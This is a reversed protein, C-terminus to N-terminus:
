QKGKILMALMEKIETVDSEIKEIKDANQKIQQNLEKSANRKNLYNEYEIRNTNIVAKSSLDRVLGDKNQINVFGEM